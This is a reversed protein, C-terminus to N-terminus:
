LAHLFAILIIAARSSDPFTSECGGFVIEFGVSPSLLEPISSDSSSSSTPGEAGGLDVRVVEELPNPGLISVPLAPIFGMEGETALVLPIVEGLCFGLTPKM